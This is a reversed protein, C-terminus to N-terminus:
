PYGACIVGHVHGRLVPYTTILDASFFVGMTGGFTILSFFYYRNRNRYHAFYEKSFLTTMMWMFATIVGYIARFGDLKFSIRFGMFGRWEFYPPSTNSALFAIAVMGLFTIVVVFIAFYDRFNKNHRGIIYSAAAGAIPWFVLALLGPHGSITM